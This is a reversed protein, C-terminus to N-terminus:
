VGLSKCIEEYQEKTIEGSAFRKRAIACAEDQQSPMQTPPAGPGAQSHGGSMTRMAWVVLLVIGALILLGFAFFLIDGLWGGGMMGNAGGYYGRGYGGMM